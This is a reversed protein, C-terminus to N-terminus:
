KKDLERLEKRAREVNEQYTEIENIIDVPINVGFRAAKLKAYDLNKIHQALEQRLARELHEGKVEKRIQNAEISYINGTRDLIELRELREIRDALKDDRRGAEEFYDRTVGQDALQAIRIARVEEAIDAYREMLANATGILRTIQRTLDDITLQQRRTPM